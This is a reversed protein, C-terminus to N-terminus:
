PQRSSVSGARDGHFQDSPANVQEAGAEIARANLADVDETYILISSAPNGDRGPAATHWGVSRAPDSQCLAKLLRVGNRDRYLGDIDDLVITWYTAEISAGDRACQVLQEDYGEGAAIAKDLITPNSTVGRIGDDEVLRALGGERVLARSLNDYWPSQGFDNLRAIASKTM